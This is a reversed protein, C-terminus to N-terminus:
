VRREAGRLTQRNPALRRHYDAGGRRAGVTCLWVLSLGLQTSRGGSVSNLRDVINLGYDTVERQTKKRFNNRFFWKDIAYGAVM